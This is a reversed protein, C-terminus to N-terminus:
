KNEYETYKNAISELIHHTITDDTDHDQKNSVIVNNDFFLNYYGTDGLWGFPQRTAIVEGQKNHWKLGDYNKYIKKCNNSLINFKEVGSKYFNKLSSLTNESHRKIKSEKIWKNQFNKFDILIRKPVIYVIGVSILTSKTIFGNTHNNDNNFILICLNHNYKDHFFNENLEYFKLNLNEDLTSKLYAPRNLTLSNPNLSENEKKYDLWSQSLPWSSISNNTKSELHFEDIFNEDISIRILPSKRFVSLKFGLCLIYSM